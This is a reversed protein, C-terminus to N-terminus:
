HFNFIWTRDMVLRAPISEIDQPDHLAQEYKSQKETGIALVFVQKARQIVPPTITLRQYPPKPGTVPVVLRNTERLTPSYPFLSAIHGDEGMSLLLIDMVNPLIKQYREAEAFVDEKEAHIRFITIKKEMGQKFLTKIALNYNSEIHNSAVCREDGFYIRCKLLLNQIEDDNRWYSYLDKASRGGTLCLNCYGKQKIARLIEKKITRSFKKM